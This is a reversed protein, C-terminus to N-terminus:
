ENKNGAERNMDGECVDNRFFNQHAHHGFGFERRKNIFEQRQEPTMKAWRDSMPNRRHYWPMMMQGMNFGFGGFLIRALIFIGLAQWYNIASLGFLVPMLWNWLLMVIASFAAPILLFGVPMLFRLDRM